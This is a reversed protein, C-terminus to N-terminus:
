NRWMTESPCIRFGASRCFTRNGVLGSKPSAQHVMLSALLYGSTLRTAVNRPRVELPSTSIGMQLAPNRAEPSVGKAQHRAPAM